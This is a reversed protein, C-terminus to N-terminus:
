GFLRNIQIPDQIWNMDYIEDAQEISNVIDLKHVKAKLKLVEGLTLEPDPNKILSKVEVFERKLNESDIDMEFWIMEMRKVDIVGMLMEGTPNRQVSIREEVAESIYAVGKDSVSMPVNVDAWGVMVNPFPRNKTNSKCTLCIYEAEMDNLLELDLDIYEATGVMSPIFQVDGGHKCGPIIHRSHSCIDISDPYIVACNLDLDLYMPRLGTGWQMFLRISSSGIQFRAGSLGPRGNHVSKKDNLSLVSIQSLRQDIFMSANTNPEATLKIRLSDFYLDQIATKMEDLEEDSYQSILRNPQITKKKGLGVTRVSARDFYVKAYISLSLLSGPPIKSLIMKFHFLTIDKGFRLMLSFLNETFVEPKTKLLRFTYVADNKRKFYDLKGQWVRYKQEHFAKLLDALNEFGKRKSYEVLRLARIFRVWMERRPHMLECQREVDITMNNLWLAYKRCATRSYKLKLKNTMRIKHRNPCQDDQAVARNVIVGPELLNFFGTKKYWLYELVDNPQKILLSLETIRDAEGLLDIVYMLTKKNPIAIDDPLKICSLLAYLDEKQRLTLNRKSALLGKLMNVLDEEIWLDLVSFKSELISKQFASHNIATGCVPCSKYANLPFTNEVLKHGCNLKVYRGIGLKSKCYDIVSKKRERGPNDIGIILKNELERLQDLIRAQDQFSLQNVAWLLNESCTMGLKSLDSMFTLTSARLPVTTCPTLQNVPILLKDHRITLELIETKM